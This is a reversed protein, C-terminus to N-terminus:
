PESIALAIGGQILTHKNNVTGMKSKRLRWSLLPTASRLNNDKTFSGMCTNSYLQKQIILKSHNKVQYNREFGMLTCRLRPPNGGLYSGDVRQEKVTISKLIVSKSGRDGM